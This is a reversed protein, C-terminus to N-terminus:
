LNEPMGIDSDESPLLEITVRICCFEMYASICKIVLFMDANLDEVCLAVVVDCTDTNPM